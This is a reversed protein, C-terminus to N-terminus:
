VNETKYCNKLLVRYLQTSVPRMTVPILSAPQLCRCIVQSYLPPPDVDTTSQSPRGSHSVVESSAAGSGATDGQVPEYHSDVYTGSSAVRLRQVDPIEEYDM